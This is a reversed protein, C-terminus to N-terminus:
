LVRKKPKKAAAPLRELQLKVSETTIARFIREVLAPDIGAAAAWQARAAFFAPLHDPRRVSKADPKFRAAALAYRQREGLLRVLTADIRNVERRVHAIETCRSPSKRLSRPQKTSSPV